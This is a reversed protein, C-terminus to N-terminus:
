RVGALFRSTLTDILLDTRGWKPDVVAIHWANLVERYAQKGIGDWISDLCGPWMQGGFTTYIRGAVETVSVRGGDSAHRRFRRKTRRATVILPTSWTADHLRGLTTDDCFGDIADRAWVDRGQYTWNGGQQSNDTVLGARCLAACLATLEPSDLDTPGYYGPRSTIEGELWLAMGEGLDALTRAEAWLKRDAREITM